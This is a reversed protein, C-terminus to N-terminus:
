YVWEKALTQWQEKTALGERYLAIRLRSGNLGCAQKIGQIAEHLTEHPARPNPPPFAPVTLILSAPPVRALLRRTTDECWQLYDEGHLGSGFLPFELDQAQTALAEVFGEMELWHLRCLISNKFIPYQTAVGQVVTWLGEADELSTLEADLHLGSFSGFFGITHLFNRQVTPHGLPAVVDGMEHNRLWARFKMSYKQRTAWPNVTWIFPDASGPFRIHGEPDCAGADWYGLYFQHRRLTDLMAVIEREPPLDVSWTESLYVADGFARFPNDRRPQSGFSLVRNSHAPVDGRQANPGQEAEKGEENTM